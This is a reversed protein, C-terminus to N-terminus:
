RVVINERSKLLKVKLYKSYSDKFTIYYKFGRFSKPIIPGGIDLYVLTLNDSLVLESYTPDALRAPVGPVQCVLSFV